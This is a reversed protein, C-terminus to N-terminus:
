AGDASQAPAGDGPSPAPGAGAGGAAPPAERKTHHRHWAYLVATALVLVGGAVFEGPAFCVCAAVFTSTM